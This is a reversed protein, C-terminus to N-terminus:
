TTNMNSEARLTTTLASVLLCEAVTEISSRMLRRSFWQLPKRAVRTPDGLEEHGWGHLQTSCKPMHEEGKTMPTLGAQEFTVVYNVVDFFAFMGEKPGMKLIFDVYERRYRRM